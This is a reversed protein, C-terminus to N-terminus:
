NCTKVYEVLTQPSKAGAWNRPTELQRLVMVPARRHKVMGVEHNFCTLVM